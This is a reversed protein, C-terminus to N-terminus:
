SAKESPVPCLHLRVPAFDDQHVIITNDPLAKALHKALSTKGSCTAGGVAVLVITQQKDSM